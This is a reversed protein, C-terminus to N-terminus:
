EGKVLWPDEINGALFRDIADVAQVPGRADRLTKYEFFLSYLSGFRYKTHYRMHEPTTEDLLNAQALRQHIPDSESLVREAHTVEHGLELNILGALYMDMSGGICCATGCRTLPEDEELSSWGNMDFALWAPLAVDTRIPDIADRVWILADYIEPTIRLEEATLRTSTM